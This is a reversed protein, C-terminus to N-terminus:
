STEGRLIIGNLIIDSAADVIENLTLDANPPALGADRLRELLRLGNAPFIVSGVVLIHTVLPNVDRRFAGQSRGEEIVRATMGVLRAVGELAADPLSAAGGAIERLMIHPFSPHTTAVSAFAEQLRTLRGAPDPVDAIAEEVERSLEDFYLALVQGYIAAKDGVHYYLMAKNVGARRAIEDVRAGAFGQAAFIEEAAALIKRAQPSLSNSPVNDM